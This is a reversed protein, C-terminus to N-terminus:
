RRAGPLMTTLPPDRGPSRLGAERDAQPRRRHAIAMVILAGRKRESLARSVTWNASSNATAISPTDAASDVKM